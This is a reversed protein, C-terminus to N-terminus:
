ENKNLTKLLLSSDGVIIPNSSVGSVLQNKDFTKDYSNALKILSDRVSTGVGSCINLVLPMESLKNLKLIIECIRNPTLFDRIDDVYSIRIRKDDLARKALAGLSGEASNLSLVSFPRLICLQTPNAKFLNVLRDECEMKQIAYNSSPRIDASEKLPDNSMAYVHSSSVYVFRRLNYGRLNSALRITRTVNVEYSEKLDRSVASEGVVGALHIFDFEVSKDISLEIESTFKRFQFSEISNPLHRGITGSMGSAFFKM